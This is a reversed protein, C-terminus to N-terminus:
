RTVRMAGSSRKAGSWGVHICYVLLRTPHFCSLFGHSSSPLHFTRSPPGSTTALSRSAPDPRPARPSAALVTLRRQSSATCPPQCMMMLSASRIAGARNGRERVPTSIDLEDSVVPAGREAQGCQRKRIIRNKISYRNEISYVSGCLTYEVAVPWARTRGRKCLSPGDGSRSTASRAEVSSKPAKRYSGIHRVSDDFICLRGRLSIRSAEIESWEGM